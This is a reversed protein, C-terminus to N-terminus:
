PCLRPTPNISIGMIDEKDETMGSNKNTVRQYHSVYSHFSGGNQLQSFGSNRHGNEIAIKVNGSPINLNGHIASIGNECGDIPPSLVGVTKHCQQSERCARIVSPLNRYKGQHFGM